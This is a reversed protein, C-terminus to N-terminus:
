RPTSATDARHAARRLPRAMRRAVRKALSPPPAPPPAALRTEAARLRRRLDNREERLTRVDEVVLALVDVAVDAVESDSVEDATRRVALEAPVRLDEVDGIVDYGGERVVAVAREGRARCDEIQEPHPWFREGGRPVLREDALYTRIMSGRALRARMLGREDFRTNIRRLTEAEVVGMSRNPFGAEADYAVPDVGLLAGFRQWVLDRPAGGRALPLVHTRPAPVAGSWRELVAALDLTWWDWIPQEGADAPPPYDAMRAVGRNKLSEQWSAAFLGLPERATVVVDVEAPALAEVVAAAQEATASALFEHSILATGPWAAVEALIRDYATRRWGTFREIGEHEVVRWAFWLHDPRRRGPVLVGASRLQDRHGWVIGQLYSTATKPLGIHLLVREAM